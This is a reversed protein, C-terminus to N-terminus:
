FGLHSPSELGTFFYTSDRARFILPERPYGLHRADLLFWNCPNPSLGIYTQIHLEPANPTAAYSVLRHNGELIVFPGDVVHGWLLTAAWRDPTERLTLHPMRVAVSRLENRDTPADWGARGIVMLEELHESRLEVRFWKTDPPIHHFLGFRLSALLSRRLANESENSFDSKDILQRVLRRNSESLTFYKDFRSEEACLFEKVVEDFSVSQWEQASLM